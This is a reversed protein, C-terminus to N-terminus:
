GSGPLPAALAALLASEDVDISTELDVFLLQAVHEVEPRQEVLLVLAKAEIAEVYTRHEDLGYGFPEDAAWAM